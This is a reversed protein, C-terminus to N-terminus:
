EGGESVASWGAGRGEAAGAAAGPRLPTLARGGPGAAWPPHLGPSGGGALFRACARGRRRRLPLYEALARLTLAYETRHHELREWEREPAEDYYQRIHDEYATM